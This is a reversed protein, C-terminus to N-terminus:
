HVMWFTKGDSILKITGNKDTRLTKIMKEDLLHITSPAPHGYRNKAGVSIVSLKPAITDLFTADMGTGSGHHPVKLVDIEGALDTIQNGIMNNTDGTLLLHFSGYSLLQVVSLANIDINNDSGSSEMVENKLCTNPWLTKLKVGDRLTFQDGQCTFHIPVNKKKLADILMKYGIAKTQIPQTAFSLVEYRKAILLLGYQHDDHPHTLIMLDIKRDWFPMNDSLCSLIKNDPGGDIVIDKGNPTRIFIGDGQGVDCFTIHLKGDNFHFNQYIFIGGLILLSFLAAFFYKKLV